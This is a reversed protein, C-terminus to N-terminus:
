RGRGRLVVGVTRALIRLDFGLSMRRAYHLEYQLKEYADEVSAGYSYSVQAWGTIGPQIAHRLNYFPIQRELARVFYPREPRPGVLSMEGRLVNFLQPLEDIRYRRILAGIRTIRRDNEGAWVPGSDLEAGDRMSRFKYLTFERGHLGVREQRFLATGPSELRIAAAVLLMLPAALLLLLLACALDLIRKGAFCAGPAQFGPSFILSEAPLAELWVKRHLRELTESAREIRLGHLKCELLVREGDPSRTETDAVIVRAVKRGRALEQLDCCRLTREVASVASDCGGRVGVSAPNDSPAVFGLFTGSDRPALLEHYVRDALRGTGFIVVGEADRRDSRDKWNRVLPLTAPWLLAGLLMVAAM